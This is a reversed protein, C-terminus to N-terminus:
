IKETSPSSSCGGGPPIEQKIAGMQLWQGYGPAELPWQDARALTRVGHALVRAARAVGAHTIWVTDHDGQDEDWARGVRTLVDNASEAGGFRHKGFDDTWAQLATQPIANWAVGEWSGFDMERLRPDTRAQLDARSACLARALQQCRTLPSVRLVAGMPLTAALARAAQETEAADAQVDMVGYCIGAAILPRAHRVIWLAM